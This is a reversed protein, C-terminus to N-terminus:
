RKPRSIDSWLDLIVLYEPNDLVFFPNAQTMGQVASSQGYEGRFYRSSLCLGPTGGEHALLRARAVLWIRTPKSLGLLRICHGQLLTCPANYGVFGDV